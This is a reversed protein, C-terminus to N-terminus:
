RKRPREIVLGELAIERPKERLDLLLMRTPMQQNDAATHQVLDIARGRAQAEGYRIDIPSRHVGHQRSAIRSDDTPDDHCRFLRDIPLETALEPAAKSRDVGLLDDLVHKFPGRPERTQPAREYWATPQPQGRRIIALWPQRRELPGHELDDC